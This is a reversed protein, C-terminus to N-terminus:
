VSHVICTACQSRLIIYLHEEGELDHVDYDLDQEIAAETLKPVVLM